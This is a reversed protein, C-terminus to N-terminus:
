VGRVTKLAGLYSQDAIIVFVDAEPENVAESDSEKILEALVPLCLKNVEDQGKSTDIDAVTTKLIKCGNFHNELEKKEVTTLESSYFIIIPIKNEKAISLENLVNRQYIM